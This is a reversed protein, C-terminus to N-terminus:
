LGAIADGLDTGYGGWCVITGDDDEQGMHWHGDDRDHVLCLGGCDIIVTPDLQVYDDICDEVVYRGEPDLLRVERVGLDRIRQLTWGEPLDAV